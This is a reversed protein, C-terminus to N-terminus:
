VPLGTAEDLGARKIIRRCYEADEDDLDDRWGGVKGRRVKFSDPDNPDAPRLRAGHRSGFSGEAEMRRMNDFRYRELVAELQGTTVRKGLFAAIRHLENVGDAHLNEYTVTLADRRGELAGIWMANFRVIKEIGYREDRIFEKLTGDFVHIRKTAQLFGAVVTDRPDRHLFIVRRGGLLSDPREVEDIRQGRRHASGAHTYHAKIGIDDLMVRLWTRGSKPFSVVVPRKFRSLLGLRGEQRPKERTSM